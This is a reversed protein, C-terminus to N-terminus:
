YASPVLVPSESPQCSSKGTIVIHHSCLYSLVDLIAKSTREAVWHTHKERYQGTLFLRFETIPSTAPPIVDEHPLVEHLVQSSLTPHSLPKSSLHMNNSTQRKGFFEVQMCVDCRQFVLWLPCFETQVLAESRQKKSAGGM